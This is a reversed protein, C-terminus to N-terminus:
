TRWTDPSTLPQWLASLRIALRLRSALLTGSGHVLGSQESNKVLSAMGYPTRQVTQFVPPGRAGPWTLVAKVQGRVGSGQRNEM